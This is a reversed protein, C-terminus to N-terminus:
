ARAQKPKYSKYFDEEWAYDKSGMDYLALHTVHYFGCDKCYYKRHPIAKSNGHAAKAWHGNGMHVHRKCGNIVIGAERETYCIKGTFICMVYNGENTKM